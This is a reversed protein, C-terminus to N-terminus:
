RLRHAKHRGLQPLTQVSRQRRTRDIFDSIIVLLLQRKSPFVWVGMPVCQKPEQETRNEDVTLSRGRNRLRHLDGADERVWLRSAM